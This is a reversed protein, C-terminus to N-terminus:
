DDRSRRSGRRDQHGGSNGRSGRGVLAIDCAIDRGDKGPKLRYTVEVGEKLYSLGSAELESIHVFIDDGGGEPEIFGYKKQTNFWKVVGSYQGEDSRVSSGNVESM